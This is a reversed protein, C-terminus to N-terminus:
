TKFNFFFRICLMKTNLQYAILVQATRPIGLVTIQLHDILKTYNGEVSSKTKTGLSDASDEHDPVRGLSKRVNRWGYILDIRKM